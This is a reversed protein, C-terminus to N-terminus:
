INSLAPASIKKSSDTVMSFVLPAGHISKRTTIMALLIARPLTRVIAAAVVVVTSHVLHHGDELYYTLQSM